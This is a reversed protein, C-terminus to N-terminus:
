FRILRDNIVLKDSVILSVGSILFYSGLVPRQYYPITVNDCHYADPYLSFRHTLVYFM